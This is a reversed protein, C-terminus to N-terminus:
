RGEFTELAQCLVRMTEEDPPVGPQGCHAQVREAWDELVSRAEESHIRALAEIAYRRAWSDTDELAGSLVEVAMEGCEPALPVTM